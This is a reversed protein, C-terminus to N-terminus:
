NPNALAKRYFALLRRGINDWSYKQAEKLAARGLKKRLSQDAILKELLMSFGQVDKPKTLFDCFPKDKLIYRYGANACAVIPLENVMAELIVVGFSEGEIAPACFIDASAYYAALQSDAIQGEFVVNDLRNKEVFSKAKKEEPGSGVIILRCHRHKQSIEKISKLLYFIGKRQSLRGVYLLNIKQDSFKKIKKTGSFRSLNIANPIIETKKISNSAFLRAAPSVACFRSIKKNLHVLVFAKTARGFIKSFLSAEPFSHLTAVNVTPSVSLLQWSLFPIYPEHFHLIDFKEKNLFKKLSGTGQPCFSLIGIDKNVPVRFHSGFFLIDKRKLDVPPGCSLILAKNGLRNLKRSWDLVQRQVGGFSGLHYPCVLGVKM